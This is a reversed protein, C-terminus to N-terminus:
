TDGENINKIKEKDIAKEQFRLSDSSVTYRRMQIKAGTRAYDYCTSQISQLDICRTAFFQHTSTASGSGHTIDSCSTICM